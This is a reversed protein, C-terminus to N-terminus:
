QFHYPQAISTLKMEFTGQDVHWAEGTALNTVKGTSCPLQIMVSQPDSQVGLRMAAFWSEGTQKNVRQRVCVAPDILDYETKVFESKELSNSSPQFWSATQAATYLVDANIRARQRPDTLSSPGWHGDSMAPFFLIWRGGDLVTLTTLSQWQELSLPKQIKNYHGFWVANWKSGDADAYRLHRTLLVRHLNAFGPEVDQSLYYSTNGHTFGITKWFAFRHPANSIAWNTIVKPFPLNNKQRVQLIDDILYKKMHDIFEQSTGHTPTLGFQSSTTLLNIQNSSTDEISSASGAADTKKKEFSYKAVLGNANQISLADIDIVRDEKVPNGAHIMLVGKKILPRRRIQTIKGVDPISITIEIKDAVSTNRVQIVPKLWRKAQWNVMAQSQVSESGTKFRITNTGHYGGNNNFIISWSEDPNESDVCEIITAHGGFIYNQLYLGFQLDFESLNGNFVTSFQEVPKSQLVGAAEQNIQLRSNGDGEPIGMPKEDDHFFHTMNLAIPQEFAHRVDGLGMICGATQRGILQGGRVAVDRNLHAWTAKNGPKFDSYPCLYGVHSLAKAWDKDSMEGGVAFGWKSSDDGGEFFIHVFPEKPHEIAPKSLLRQLLASPEQALGSHSLFMAIFWFLVLTRRM